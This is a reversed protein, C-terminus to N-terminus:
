FIIYISGVIPGKISSLGVPVAHEKPRYCVLFFLFTENKLSLIPYKGSVQWLDILIVKIICIAFLNFAFIFLNIPM